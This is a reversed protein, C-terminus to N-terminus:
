YWIGHVMYGGFGEVPEEVVEGFLADALTDFQGVLGFEAGLLDDEGAEGGALLLHGTLSRAIVAIGAVTARRPRGWRLSTPPVEARRARRSPCLM